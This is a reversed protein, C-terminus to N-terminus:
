VVPKSGPSTPVAPIPPRFPAPGLAPLSRLLAVLKDGECGAVEGGGVGDGDVEVGFAAAEASRVIVRGEVGGITM